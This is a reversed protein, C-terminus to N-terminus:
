LVRELRHSIRRPDSIMRIAGSRRAKTKPLSSTRGQVRGQLGQFRRSVGDDGRGSRFAGTEGEAFEIQPGPTILIGHFCQLVEKLSTRLGAVSETKQSQSVHCPPNGSHWPLPRAPAAGREPGPTLRQLGRSPARRCAPHVRLLIETEGHGRDTDWIRRLWNGARGTGRPGMPVEGFGNAKKLLRRSWGCTM